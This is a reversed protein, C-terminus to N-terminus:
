VLKTGGRTTLENEAPDGRANMLGSTSGCRNLAGSSSRSTFRVRATAGCLYLCPCVLADNFHLHDLEQWPREVPLPPPIVPRIEPIDGTERRRNLAHDLERRVWLSEKAAKSGFRLFLDCEDILRYLAQEWSGAEDVIRRLIAGILESVEIRVRGLQVYDEDNRQKPRREAGEPVLSRKRAWM